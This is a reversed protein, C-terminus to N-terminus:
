PCDVSQELVKQILRRQSWLDKPKRLTTAVGLATWNMRCELTLDRGVVVHSTAPALRECKRVNRAIRPIRLSEADWVVIAPQPQLAPAFWSEDERDNESPQDHHEPGSSVCIWDIITEPVEFGPRDLLSRFALAWDEDHAFVVVRRRPPRIRRLLEEVSLASSKM